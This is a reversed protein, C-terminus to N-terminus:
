EVEPKLEVHSSDIIRTIEVMTIDDPMRGGGAHGEIEALIM